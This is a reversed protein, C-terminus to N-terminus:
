STMHRSPIQGGGGQGGWYELGQGGLIRFRGVGINVRSKKITKAKSVICVWLLPATKDDLNHRKPIFDLFNFKFDCM